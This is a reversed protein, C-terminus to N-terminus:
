ITSITSDYDVYPEHARGSRDTDHDDPPDSYGTPQYSADHETELYILEHLVSDIVHLIENPTALLSTTNVHKHIDPYRAINRLIRYVRGQREVPFQSM